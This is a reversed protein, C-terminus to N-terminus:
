IFYNDNTNNGFLPSASSGDEKILLPCNVLKMAGSQIKELQKVSDNYLLVYDEPVKRAANRRVSRYVVISAIIQVLVGNRIPTETFIKDCIYKGSIYSIVLDITKAEINDLIDNDNINVPAETAISDNMLREQIISVLDEKNIYKM